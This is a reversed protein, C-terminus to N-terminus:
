RRLFGAEFEELSSLIRHAIAYETRGRNHEEPVAVCHMGAAHASRLGHVSDEFAICDGPEVGLHAAASLYVAPHPKGHEMGEASLAGGFWARAGPRLAELRGIAAEIIEPPSSSAIAMRCGAEHCMELTRLAGAKPRGEVRLHGVMLEVLRARLHAPDMETKPFFGRWIALTERMRLGTTQLQMADTLEVGLETFIKRQAWMWVPESDVLLGDLDFVAGKFVNM